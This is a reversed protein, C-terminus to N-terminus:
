ECGYPGGGGVRLCVVKQTGNTASKRNSLLMDVAEASGTDEEPSCVVLNGVGAPSRHGEGVAGHIHAPLGQHAVPLIHVLDGVEIMAAAPLIGMGFGICGPSDVVVVAVMRLEKLCDMGGVVLMGEVEEAAMHVEEEYGLDEAALTGENGAVRKHVVVAGLCTGEVATRHGWELGAMHDLEVVVASYNYRVAELRVM